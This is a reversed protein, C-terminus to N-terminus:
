NRSVDDDQAERRDAEAREVIDDLNVNRFVVIRYCAVLETRPRRRVLRHRPAPLHFRYGTEWVFLRTDDPLDRWGDHCRLYACAAEYPNGPPSPVMTVTPGDDISFLKTM